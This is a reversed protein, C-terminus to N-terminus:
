GGEGWKLTAPKGHAASIDVEASPETFPFQSARSADAGRQEVEFFAKLFQGLCWKLNGMSIDRDIALRRGSPVDPHPDPRLRRPYVGSPCIFQPHARRPTKEMARIQVPSTHDAYCM